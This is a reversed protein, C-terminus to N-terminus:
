LKGTIQAANGLLASAAGSCVHAHKVRVPNVLVGGVLVVLDDHNVGHVNDDAIVRANVPDAVRYVLVAFSPSEGRSSALVTAQADLSVPGVVGDATGVAGVPLPEVGLGHAAVSLDSQTTLFTNSFLWLVYIM